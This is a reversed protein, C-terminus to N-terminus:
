AFTEVVYQEFLKGLFAHQLEGAPFLQTAFIGCTGGKRDIWWKLNPAGGWNMKGAKLGTDTNDDLAVIGGLAYSWRGADPTGLAPEGPIMIAAYPAISLMQNLTAQASSSLCPTFLLDIGFLGGGGFEDEPDLPAELITNKTYGDALADEPSPRSTMPMLREGIGNHKVYFSTDNMGLVDFVNQRLYEELTCKNARAVMLGALELGGGYAFGFGPEFLLPATFSKLIPARLHLLGEGRHERWKMLDPSLFDYGVGSTHTLLRRLTINEKAPQLIPSGDDAWGTLIEPDKWEPLLRDINTPDDLTFLGREVCQLAAVATVLKTCSALWMVTKTSVAPSAPDLQLTGYAALFDQPDSTGDIQTNIPRDLVYCFYITLGNRSHSPPTLRRFRSTCGGPACSLFTKEVSSVVQCTPRLYRGTQQVGASKTTLALKGYTPSNLVFQVCHEQLRKSLLSCLAKGRRLARAAGLAVGSLLRGPGFKVASSFVDDFSASTSM